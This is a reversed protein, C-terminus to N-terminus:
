AVAPRRAQLATRLADRDHTKVGYTMPSERHADALFRDIQRQGIAHLM